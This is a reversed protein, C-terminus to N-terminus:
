STRAFYLRTLLSRKALPHRVNAAEPEEKEQGQSPPRPDNEAKEVVERAAVPSARARSTRPTLTSARAPTKRPEHATIEGPLVSKRSVM